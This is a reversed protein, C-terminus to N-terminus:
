RYRRWFWGICWVGMVILYMVMADAPPVLGARAALWWAPVVFAYLYLAALGGFRYTELEHEDVNRHWQLSIAPVVLFWVALIPIVVAPALPGNSYLAFPDDMSITSVALVAGIVGGLAGSAILLNRAKRTKPSMPGSMAAWPKLLKLGWLAIGGIAVLVAILAIAMPLNAGEDADGFLLAGAGGAAGGFAILALTGALVSLVADRASLPREEERDETMAMM